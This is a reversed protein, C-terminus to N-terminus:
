VWKHPDSRANNALKIFTDLFTDFDECITESSSVNSGM